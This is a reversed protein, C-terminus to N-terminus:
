EYGLYELLGENLDNFKKINKVSFKNKWDQLKGQKFTTTGGFLKNAVSCAEDYTLPKDIHNAITLIEQVQEELSGGGQPGVLKEFRAIYVFPYQSWQLYEKYISNFSGYTRLFPHNCAAKSLYKGPLQIINNLKKSSTSGGTVRALACVLDRPDRIILIIKQANKEIYKVKLDTPGLSFKDNKGAKWHHTWGVTEADGGDQWHHTWHVTGTEVHVEKILKICKIILNTGTKPITIVVDTVANINTSCLIFFVSTIYISIKRM